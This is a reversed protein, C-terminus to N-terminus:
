RGSYNHSRTRDRLSRWEPRHRWRCHTHCLSGGVKAVLVATKERLDCHVRGGGARVRGKPCVCVPSSRADLAQGLEDSGVDDLDVRSLHTWGGTSHHLLVSIMECVDLRSRELGGEDLGANGGQGELDARRQDPLEVEDLPRVVKDTSCECLVLHDGLLADRGDRLDVGIRSHQCLPLNNLTASPTRREASGGKNACACAISAEEDRLDADVLINFLALEKSILVINVSVQDM